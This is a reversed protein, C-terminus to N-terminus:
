LDLTINQSLVSEPIYSFYGHQLSYEIIEEKTRLDLKSKITQIYSEVTRFSISLIKAIAKSTKGRLYYFLVNMERATLKPTDAVKGIMYSRDMESTQTHYRRDSQMLTACIKSVTDSQIETCQCIVGSLNQNYYLPKKKTILIRPKNDAYVHIDLLSLEEGSQMVFQDQKFFNDASAAVPCPAQLATHGIMADQDQYGMLEAAYQNAFIFQSSQNMVLFFGPMQQLWASYMSESDM